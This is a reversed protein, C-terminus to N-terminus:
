DRIATATSYRSPHELMRHHVRIRCANWSSSNIRCRVSLRDTHSCVMNACGNALARTRIRAAVTIQTLPQPLSDFV